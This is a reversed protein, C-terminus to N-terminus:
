TYVGSSNWFLIFFAVWAGQLSMLYYLEFYPLYTTDAGTLMPLSMSWVPSLSPMVWYKMYPQDGM